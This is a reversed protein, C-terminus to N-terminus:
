NGKILSLHRQVYEIVLPKALHAIATIFQRDSESWIRPQSFVCPQLVGWLQNKHCLHAHILARHGFEQQEFLRNVVQADATEIDEVFISPQCNLAAAFMPDQQEISTSEPKWESGTVDPITSDRCYCFAAKGLRSQPDRVYLFCRDCELSKVIEPMLALLVQDLKELLIAKM